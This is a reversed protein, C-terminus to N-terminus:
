IVTQTGASCRPDKRDGESVALVRLSPPLASVLPHSLCVGSLVGGRVTIRRFASMRGHTPPGRDTPGPLLEADSSAGVVARPVPSAEKITEPVSFDEKSAEPVSSTEEVTEPVSM